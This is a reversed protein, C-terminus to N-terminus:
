QSGTLQQAHFTNGVSRISPWGPADSTIRYLLAGGRYSVVNEAFLNNEFTAITDRVSLAGGLDAQNAIFSNRAVTLSSFRNLASGHLDMAGGEGAVNGSFQSNTIHA